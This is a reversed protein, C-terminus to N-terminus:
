NMFSISRVQLTLKESQHPDKTTPLFSSTLLPDHVPIFHVLYLIFLLIVSLPPTNGM